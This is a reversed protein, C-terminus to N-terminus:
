INSPAIGELSTGNPGPIYGSSAYDPLASELLAFCSEVLSIDVVQGKGGNHSRGMLALLIGQVAFMAGLSDGLSIGARPPPGGPFGNLHRLGGVAEAIAAYGPRSAKPGTQGYGSVRAII